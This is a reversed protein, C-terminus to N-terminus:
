TVPCCTFTGFGATLVSTPFLLNLAPALLGPTSPYLSVASTFYPYCMQNWFRRQKQSKLCLNVLPCIVTKKPTTHITTIFDKGSTCVSSNISAVNELHITHQCRTFSPLKYM